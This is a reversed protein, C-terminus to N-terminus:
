RKDPRPRRSKANSRYRTRRLWSLRRHGNKDPGTCTPQATKYLSIIKQSTDGNADFQVPGLVTDFTTGTNTVNARVAERTVDGKAAADAMAKIIIQACAYGSASYAGPDQKYEAQYKAAFDAAGPIDHIAAVSSYSNAAAPGAINIFSGQSNGDQIGDGGLYPLSGLGAQEMQKRALGGGNATVGGYFVSDPALPQFKTLIPSFDTTKPDAGERDVIAGGLKTFEASFSDAIGKGYVSLDDIVAVKKLGLDNYAYQAVAPGQIDDTTAVRVYSIKTPNKSRLQLGADGKTLDPNTNAPSCQLLGAENSIPIQVKAVASNFPGIVATVSSDSVLTTMDKAGQQADYQGNVAHDLITTTLTYGKVTGAANAEKIALLAGDRAPGASALSSGSLPFSIGIKLTKAGGSSGSCAGVV